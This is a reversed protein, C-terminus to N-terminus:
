LEAAQAAILTEWDSIVEDTWTASAVAQVRDTEGSTDDGPNLVHRMFTRAIEAGNESVVTATRIQLQGAELIEIKDVIEAKTFAM